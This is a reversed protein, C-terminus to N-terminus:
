RIIEIEGKKPVIIGKIRRYKSLAKEVDEWRKLFWLAQEKICLSQLSKKRLFVVRLGSETWARIEHPNRRIRNDGTVIIWDGEKSLRKIWEEDPTEPPFKDQLHTFESDKYIERLVKPIKPSINNDFFYKM